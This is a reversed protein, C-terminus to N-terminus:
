KSKKACMACIGTKQAFPVLLTEQGITMVVAFLTVAVLTWAVIRTVVLSPKVFLMTALIAFISAEIVLLVTMKLM